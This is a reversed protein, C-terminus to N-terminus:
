TTPVRPICPHPWARSLAPVCVKHVYLARRQKNCCASQCDTTSSRECVMTLALISRSQLPGQLDVARDLRETLAWYSILTAAVVMTSRVTASCGCAFHVGGLTPHWALGVPPIPQTRVSMGIDPHAALNAPRARAHTHTHTHTHTGRSKFCIPQTQNNGAFWCVARAGLIRLQRQMGTDHKWHKQRVNTPLQDNFQFTKVEAIISRSNGFRTKLHKEQAPNSSLCDYPLSIYRYALM